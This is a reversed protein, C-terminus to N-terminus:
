LFHVRACRSFLKCPIFANSSCSATHCKQALAHTHTRTHTHTHTHSHTHTHVHTHTHSTTCVFYSFYCLFEVQCRLLPAFELHCHSKYPVLQTQLVQACACSAVSTDVTVTFFPYPLELLARQAVEIACCIHTSALHSGKM